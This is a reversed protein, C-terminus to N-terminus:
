DGRLTDLERAITARDEPGARELARTLALIAPDRQGTRALLRGLNWWPRYFAPDVETGRRFDAIARDTEGLHDLATGRDNLVQASAADGEHEVARNLDALALAWRSARMHLQARFHLAQTHPGAALVHDLDVLAGTADGNLTRLFARQLRADQHAPDIELARGLDTLAADMDHRAGHVMARAVYSEATPEIEIALDADALAAATDGMMARVGARKHYAAVFRPEVAIARDLDALADAPAGRRVRILARLYLAAASRLDLEIAHDLDREAEERRGLAEKVHGRASWAMALSPDLGVAVDLDSIAGALDGELQRILARNYHMPAHSPALEIARDLDARARVLNGRLRHFMGRNSWAEAMGPALEIARDYDALADDYRKEAHAVDARLVFAQAHPLEGILRDLDRRASTLDGRECAARAREYLAEPTLAESAVVAVPVRAILDLVQRWGPSHEGLRDRVRYLHPWATIADTRCLAQGVEILAPGPLDLDLLTGLAAVSRDRARSSVAACARALFTVLELEASTWPVVPGGVAHTACLATTRATAADVVLAADLGAAALVYDDLLWGKCRRAASAQGLAVDALLLAIREAEAQAERTREAEVQALRGALQDATAGWDRLADFAVQALAYDGALLAAFGLADGARQRSALLDPDTTDLGLARECVSVAALTRAVLHREDDRAAHRARAPEAARAALQARLTTVDPLERIAARAHDRARSLTEARERAARIRHLATQATALVLACAVLACAVKHRTVWKGVLQPVSYRAAALVRGDLYRRVDAALERASAYRRAPDHAMARLVVSELEWPIKRAPARASPALLKGETVQAIVAWPTAGVYPPALALIQYLIAGLSYVDSREDIHELDGRAQEPPMYAPTGIVQGDTTTLAGEPSGPAAGAPALAIGSRSRDDTGRQRALGWDVVLVEGFDGVMVNAPKLDRHIVGHAHAFAIAECVRIFQELELALTPDAQELAPTAPDLRALHEALDVGDVKKMAYFARGNEAHGLEHVPVIGPHALRGTIRAEQVFRAIRERAAPGEAEDARVVKLAVERDLEPDTALLVDGMGGAGLRGQVHYRGVPRHVLPDGRARGPLGHEVTPALDGDQGM